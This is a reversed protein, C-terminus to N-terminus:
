LGRAVVVSARTGLARTRCCSFGHCHSARAGCCPTAGAQWLQLFAWACSRLGLAALFLYMFLNLFIFYVYSEGLVTLHEPWSLNAPSIPFLSPQQIIDQESPCM